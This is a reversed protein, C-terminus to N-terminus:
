RAGANQMHAFQDEDATAAASSPTAPRSPMRAPFPQLAVPQTVAGLHMALCQLYTSAHSASGHALSDHKCHLYNLLLNTLANTACATNRCTHAAAAAMLM